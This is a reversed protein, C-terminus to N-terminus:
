FNYGAGVSFLVLDNEIFKSFETQIFWQEIPWRSYLSAMVLLPNPTTLKTNKPETLHQHTLMVPLKFGIEANSPSVFKSIGISAKAGYISIDSQDYTIARKESGANGLGYVFCGDVFSRYTLFNRGLSGGACVARNTVIISSKANGSKIEAEQQWSLFDLFVATSKSLPRSLEMAWLSHSFILIILHFIIAM